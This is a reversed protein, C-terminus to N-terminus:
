GAVAYWVIRCSLDGMRNKFISLLRDFSSICIKHFYTWRYIGITKRYSVIAGYVSRVM